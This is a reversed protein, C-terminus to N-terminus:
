QGLLLQIQALVMHYFLTYLIYLIVYFRHTTHLFHNSFLGESGDSKGNKLRSVVNIIDSHSVVYKVNECNHLREFITSEIAHMDDVDYLLFVSMAIAHPFCFSGSM